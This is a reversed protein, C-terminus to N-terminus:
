RSPVAALTDRGSKALPPTMTWSPTSSSRWADWSTPSSPSSVAPPAAKPLLEENAIENGDLDVGVTLQYKVGNVTVTVTDETTLNDFTLQYSQDEAIRTGPARPSNLSTRTYDDVGLSIASGTIADDDVLEGDARDEYSAYILIDQDVEVQAAGFEFVNATATNAKQNVTVGAGPVASPSDALERGESDSIFITVGDSQLEAELDEGFATADLADNIADVLGSYTTASRIAATNM